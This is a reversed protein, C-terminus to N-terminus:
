ATMPMSNCGKVTTLSTDFDVQLLCISPRDITGNVEHLLTSSIWIILNIHLRKCGHLVGPRNMWTNAFDSVQVMSGRLAEDIDWPFNTAALVMVIKRAGDDGPTSANVGDVQVLLDSKVRRSSEHEGSARFLVGRSNCLSDIEDIFITSPAYSRAMDFLCRVMHESEARWKSALTASSVNFFTTGCVIVVAKALLTKRTGPLGFMLVGKWPRRIGQFYEPIWLRLVVAEELLRKADNLGAVDDWRVGPSTELVDRELM